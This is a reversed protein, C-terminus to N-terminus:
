IRLIDGPTLTSELACGLTVKVVYDHATHLVKCIDPHDIRSQARAEQMFRLTMERDGAGIFKLAVLRGLQSDRAEVEDRCPERREM